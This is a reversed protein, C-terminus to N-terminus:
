QMMSERTRVGLVTGEGSAMPRASETYPMEFQRRMVAVAICSHSRWYGPGHVPCVMAPGPMKHTRSARRIRWTMM